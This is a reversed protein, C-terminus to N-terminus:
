AANAAIMQQYVRAAENPDTTQLELAQQMVALTGSLKVKDDFAGIIRCANELAKMRDAVIIEYGRTTQKVGGYLLLAEGSLRTTDRPVIRELGEGRCELCHPNCRATHDYDLGGAPDPMRLAALAAQKGALAQRQLEYTELAEEYERLRWHYRGGEGWCYRCAGVQLSILENPDARAIDLWAQLAMQRDFIVPNRTRACVDEIAAAVHPRRLMTNARQSIAAASIDAPPQCASRYARSANFECEGCYAAVFAQEKLDLILRPAQAM